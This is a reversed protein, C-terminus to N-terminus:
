SRDGNEYYEEYNEVMERVFEEKEEKTFGTWPRRLASILEELTNKPQQKKKKM